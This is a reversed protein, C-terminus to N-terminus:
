AGQQLLSGALKLDQPADIDIGLSQPMFFPTTEKAVVFSNHHGLFKTSALHFSGEIFGFGGPYDQRLVLGRPPTKLYEWSGDAKNFEICEFPHERMPTVGVM